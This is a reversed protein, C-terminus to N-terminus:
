VCFPGQPYQATKNKSRATEVIVGTQIILDGADNVEVGFRDLNRPAPGAEYEGHINYKSGHCPCEFGQSPVCSPVRCGLHVCKQWLAMVGVGDAEGGAIVFPTNEFSSGELQDLDFTVLWSQASARFLPVVAGAVSIERKIEELNGVNVPSGFGGRLKPWIFALSALAFQLLFLGFVALLARNFFQRRTVNYEAVTVEIQDTLPDATAEPPAEVVTAVAAVTVEDDAAQQEAKMARSAEDAQRAKVDLEEVTVPGASPDRRFAVAFIGLVALAGTILIGIIFISTADM